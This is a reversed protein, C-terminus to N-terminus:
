WTTRITPPALDWRAGYVHLRNTKKGSLTVLEGKEHVWMLIGGVLNFAKFKQKRLKETYVGSRYGVTCYVVIPQDRLEEGRALFQTEDIAGAIISVAREKKDRVDLYIVNKKKTLALADKATIEPATKFWKKYSRYLTQIAAVKTGEAHLEADYPAVALMAALLLVYRM